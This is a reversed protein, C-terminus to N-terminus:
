TCGWLNLAGHGFDPMLATTIPYFAIAALVASVVVGKYLAGMISGGDKVKVFLTGIISAIISVAGLMLPYLVANAGVEAVMLSGLLMTAIV